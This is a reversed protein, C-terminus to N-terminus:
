KRILRWAVALYVLILATHVGLKAVLQGTSSQGLAVDAFITQDILLSVAYVAGMILFIAALRGWRYPIPYYKAGLISSIAFMVVYSALHGFAAAWYSYKPMFLVIVIATVVLGSLTIWIAMNTKGSLKYWMSVNFLMGLIMYSLLMIPVVGVASRFHPGLILAIIDIYLIVGLFVLGCFATFYEQVSAYLQRSDKEAARRFFFPEAAYRFMQIFLNMIVALKVAAQYLGLSSRWAEANTDFYRFLIRDLFDNVVGPLAAVMLPLSYALMQRLLKGDLKFSLRLFDPIFLLACVMCSVFIAFIVYSFDPTAPIFKLLWSASDVHKPFWLFLVLNAATETIIKVTKIIAFKFAKNEQRLKAFMIATISDLALIGGVYRICSSYGDYGLASSIPNAFALMLALFTASICFVTVFANSYVKKPDVGEKNAFRFCGTELGLVLVVQLVAIYAMFETVVGYSEPTLLRTYIPVFLFNIIRALITSLGYIVTQGALQKLPNAMIVAFNALKATM